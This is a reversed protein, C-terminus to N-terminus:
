DLGPLYTFNRTSQPTLALSLADFILYSAWTFRQGTFTAYIAIAIRRIDILAWADSFLAAPFGCPARM